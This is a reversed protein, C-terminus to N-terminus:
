RAKKVQPAKSGKLAPLAWPARLVLKEALGPLVVKGEVARQDSREKPVLQVLPAQKAQNEKRGWLDRWELPAKYARHAKRDQQDLHGQQGPRGRHGECRCQNRALLPLLSCCHQRACQFFM